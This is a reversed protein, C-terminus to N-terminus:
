RKKDGTKEEAKVIEAEPIASFTSAKFSVSLLNEGKVARSSQLKMDSINVIRNLKTLSSLFIGLNHYAGDVEVAVPIEYVIGSSHTTKQSPKWSKINLGAAMGLDSVQKLLSSIEKEEPLQEKLENIRKILRENEQKLIELKAAKAQDAAIENNQADIRADLKKIEKQKPMIVLIIVAISLIVAPIVSIIMKTRQSLNKINLNVAM